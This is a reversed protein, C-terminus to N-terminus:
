DVGYALLCTAHSLEGNEDHWRCRSWDNEIPVVGTKTEVCVVDNQPLSRLMEILERVLM